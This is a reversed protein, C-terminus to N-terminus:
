WTHIEAHEEEGTDADFHKGQKLARENHPEAVASAM